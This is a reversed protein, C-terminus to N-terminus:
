HTKPKPLRSHRNSPLNYGAHLSTNQTQVNEKRQVPPKPINTKLCTNQPEASVPTSKQSSMQKSKVFSMTPPRLKSVKQSQKGKLNDQGSAPQLQTSSRSPLLEPEKSASSHNASRALVAMTPPVLANPPKAIKLTKPRSAQNTVSTQGKVALETQVERVNARQSTQFCSRSTLTGEKNSAVEGPDETNKSNLNELYSSNDDKINLQISMLSNVDNLSNTLSVNAANKNQHNSNEHLGHKPYESHAEIHPMKILKGQALDTSSPLSSSPQLVQPSSRRWSTQTFKDAHTCTAGTPKQSDKQCNCRTA